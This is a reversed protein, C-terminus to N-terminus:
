GAARRVGLFVWARSFVASGRSQVALADHQVQLPDQALVELLLKRLTYSSTISARSLLM